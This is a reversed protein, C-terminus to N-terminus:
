ISIKVERAGLRDFKIDLYKKKFIKKLKKKHKQNSIVCYYGGSGAGLLKYGYVGLKNLKREISSFKKSYSSSTRRPM